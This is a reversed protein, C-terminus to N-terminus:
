CTNSIGLVNERMYIISSFYHNSHTFFFLFIYNELSKIMYKWDTDNSKM